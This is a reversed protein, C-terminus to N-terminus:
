GTAYYEKSFTETASPWFKQIVDPLTDKKIIHTGSVKESLHYFQIGEPTNRWSILRTRSDKAHIHTMFGLRGRHQRGAVQYVKYLRYERTNTYDIECLLADGEELESEEQVRTAYHLLPNPKDRSQTYGYIM